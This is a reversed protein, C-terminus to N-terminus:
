PSPIHNVSYFYPLLCLAMLEFGLVMLILYCSFGCQQLTKTNKIWGNNFTVKTKLKSNGKKRVLKMNTFIPLVSLDRWITLFPLGGTVCSERQSIILDLRIPILNNSINMENTSCM